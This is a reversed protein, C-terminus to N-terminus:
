SNKGGELTRPETNRYVKRAHKGTFFYNHRVPEQQSAFRLIGSDHFVVCFASGANLIQPFPEHEAVFKFGGPYGPQM